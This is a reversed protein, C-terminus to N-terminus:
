SEFYEECKIIFHKVQEISNSNCNIYRNLAQQRTKIAYDIEEQDFGFAVGYGESENLRYDGRSKGTEPVVISICGCISSLVSYATQTDYSICFECENFVRVKERESLDDIVKGDFTDPLDDRSAGKRVIYCKGNRAGYNTQKYLDLDFYPTFLVNCDPNLNNDNFAERFAFFLDSKDYGITKNGEQSYCSNYYLLWRVVRKAQLPNGLVIEPYVVITNKGVFPTLKRKINKFPINFSHKFRDPGLLHELVKAVTIYINYVLWKPIFLVKKLFTNYAFSISYCIKVNEGLERLYYYLTHLVIVGGYNTRPSMIVYKVKKM